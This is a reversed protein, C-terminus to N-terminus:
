YNIDYEKLFQVKYCCFWFYRSNTQKVNWYVRQESSKSIWKVRVWKLFAGNNFTLATYIPLSSEGVFTEEQTTLM